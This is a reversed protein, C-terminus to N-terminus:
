LTKLHAKAVYIYYAEPIDLTCGPEEGINFLDDADDLIQDDVEEAITDYLALLETDTM